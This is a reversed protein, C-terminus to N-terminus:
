DLQVGITVVKIEAHGAVIVENAYLVLLLKYAFADNDLHHVLNKIEDGVGVFVYVRYIRGAAAFAYHYHFANIPQVDPRIHHTKREVLRHLVPLAQRAFALSHPMFRNDSLSLLFNRPKIEIQLKGCM